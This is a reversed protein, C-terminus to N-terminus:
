RPRSPPATKVRQASRVSKKPPRKASSVGQTKGIIGKVTDNKVLRLPVRLCPKLFAKIYEFDEFKM